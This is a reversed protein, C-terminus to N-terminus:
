KSISLNSKYLQLGKDEDDNQESKIEETEPERPTRTQGGGATIGRKAENDADSEDSDESGDDEASVVRIAAKLTAGTM